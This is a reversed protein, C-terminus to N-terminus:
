GEIEFLYVPKTIELASEIEPHLRGLRGVPLRGRVGGGGARSAAGSGGGPAYEVDRQGTWTSCREVTGKVDFFDVPEAAAGLQPARASRLVRRWGCSRACRTAPRFACGVEFLRVREQQRTLNVRLTEV